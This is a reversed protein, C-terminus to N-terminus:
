RACRRRGCTGRGADPSSWSRCSTCRRPPSRRRPRQRARGRPCANGSRGGAPAASRARSDASPSSSGSRSSCLRCAALAALQRDHIRVLRVAEERDRAIEARLERLRDAPRHGRRDLAVAADGHAPDAVARGRLAVEVRRHSEGRDVVRRDHERRHVVLPRDRAEGPDGAGLARCEGLARDAIADGPQADVAIVRERDIGRHLPCRLARAGVAARRQDLEEGIAGLAMRGRVIGGAVARGVLGLRPREAVRDLPQLRVQDREAFPVVLAVGRHGGFAVGATRAACFSDSFSPIRGSCPLSSM